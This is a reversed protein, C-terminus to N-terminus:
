AIRSECLISVFGLSSNRMIISVAKRTVACKCSCIGILVANACDVVVGFDVLTSVKLMFPAILERTRYRRVYNLDM